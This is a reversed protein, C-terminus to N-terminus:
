RRKKMDSVTFMRVSKPHWEYLAGSSLWVAKPWKFVMVTWNESVWQKRAMECFFKLKVELITNITSFLLLLLLRGISTGKQLGDLRIGRGKKILEIYSNPVLDGEQVLNFGTPPPAFTVRPYPSM